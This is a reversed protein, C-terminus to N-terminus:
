DNGAHWVGYIQMPTPPGSPTPTPRPPKAAVAISPAAVICAATLAVGVARVLTRKMSMTGGNWTLRALFSGRLQETFALKASGSHFDLSKKGRRLVAHRNRESAVSQM